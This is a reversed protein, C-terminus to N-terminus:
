VWWELGLSCATNLTARSVYCTLPLRAKGPLKIAIASITVVSSFIVFLFYTRFCVPFIIV